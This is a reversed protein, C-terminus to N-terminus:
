HYGLGLRPVAIEQGRDVEVGGLVLGDTKGAM